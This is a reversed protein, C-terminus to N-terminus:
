IQDFLEAGGQAIRQSQGQEVQADELFVVKVDEIRRYENDGNDFIGGDVGGNAIGQPLHTRKLVFLFEKVHGGLHQGFGGAVDFSPLPPPGHPQVRRGELLDNGGELFLHLVLEIMGQGLPAHGVGVGQDKLSALVPPQDFAFRGFVM